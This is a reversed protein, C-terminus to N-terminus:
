QTSTVTNTRRKDAYREYRERNPHGPPYQSNIADLQICMYKISTRCLQPGMTRSLEKVFTARAKPTLKSLQSIIAQFDVLHEM